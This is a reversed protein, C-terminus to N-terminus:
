QDPLKYEGGAQGGGAPQARAASLASFNRRKRYRHSAPMSFFAIAERYLKKRTTLCNTKIQGFASQNKDVTM